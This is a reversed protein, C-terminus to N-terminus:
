SNASTFFNLGNKNISRTFSHDQKVLRMDYCTKMHKMLSELSPIGWEMNKLYLFDDRGVYGMKTEVMYPTKVYEKLGGYDTIIVPKDRIAAEVAGMGVGESFSCNVYCDCHAHFKDLEEDTLMEQVVYVNRINWNLPEVTTAKLVLICDPMQLRIFAEIMMRVNKRYDAVNGITYFTYPHEPVVRSIQLEPSNHYLLRWEGGFQRELIKRSYESPCYIPQFELLMSYQPHVTETECVTMVIVKKCLPVFREKFMRVQWDMPILFAFGIDYETEKPTNTFECFEANVLEAYRRTVHGIGSKM